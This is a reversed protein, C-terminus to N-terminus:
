ATTSTVGVRSRSSRVALRIPPRDVMEQKPPPPRFELVRGLLSNLVVQEEKSFISAWQAARDNNRIFLEQVAREGAETLTISIGRGDSEDRTRIIMKYRELTNLVSSASAASISSLRAVERPSTKGASRIVFLVRFAAWTMGAPRHVNTELDQQLRNGARVLTLGFEMADLDAGPQMELSARRTLEDFSDAGITNKKTM